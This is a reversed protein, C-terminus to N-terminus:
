LPLNATTPAAAVVGVVGVLDCALAWALSCTAMALPRWIIRKQFRRIDPLHGSVVSHPLPLRM